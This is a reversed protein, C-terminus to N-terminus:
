FKAGCTNCKFTKSVHGAAFLGFTLASTVKNTASIKHIQSSHCIPCRPVKDYTIFTQRQRPDVYDAPRKSLIHNKLENGCKDCSYNWSSDILMYKKYRAIPYPAFSLKGCKTCTTGVDGDDDEDLEGPETIEYWWFDIDEEDFSDNEGLEIGEGFSLEETKNQASDVDDVLSEDCVPCVNPNEKKVLIDENFTSKCHPCLIKRGM